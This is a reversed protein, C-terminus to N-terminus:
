SFKQIRGGSGGGAATGTIEAEARTAREGANDKGKSEVRGKGDSYLSATIEGM